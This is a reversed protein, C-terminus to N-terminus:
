LGRRRILTIVSGQIERNSVVGYIRSDEAKIRNDGLVFYEGEGITVPFM